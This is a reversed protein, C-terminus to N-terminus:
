QTVRYLQTVFLARYFAPTVNTKHYFVSSEFSKCCYSLVWFTIHKLKYFTINFHYRTIYSHKFTGVLWRTAGLESDTTHHM